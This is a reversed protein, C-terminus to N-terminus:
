IPEEPHPMSSSSIMVMSPLTEHLQKKDGLHIEPNKWDRLRSICGSNMRIAAMFRDSEVMHLTGHVADLDGAAQAIPSILLISTLVVCYQAM